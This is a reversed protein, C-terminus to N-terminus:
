CLDIQENLLARIEVQWGITQDEAFLGTPTYVIDDDHQVIRASILAQIIEKAITLTGSEVSLRGTLDPPIADTVTLTLTVFYRDIEVPTIYTRPYQFGVKDTSYRIIEGYGTSKVAQNSRMIADIEEILQKYNM